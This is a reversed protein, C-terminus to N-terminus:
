YGGNRIEGQRDKGTQEATSATALKFDAGFQGWAHKIGLDLANSKRDPILVDSGDVDMAYIAKHSKGLTLKIANELFWKPKYTRSPPRGDIMDLINDVVVDAQMFGARAMKPGGHEAVDGLAFIPPDQSPITDQPCVQLTPNVLIRSTEKSIASPLYSALIASNPRQGTCGIQIKSNLQSKEHQLYKEIPPSVILDFEEEHGDSFALKAHRAFNGQAPMTPRENLLVRVRLENQLADLAYDQLRKGFHSMLTGRSHVLTVDKDPYFDKIDSSLQVGVAGGGVIAIKQSSIIAEQVQRLEFCADERETSTVQVPLPQSSGTAIALYAYDIAEGSALLVQKETIDVVTDQIHTLIGAPARRLIGDYPIFATHEHETLVSFRPFVFSYNLHSNKEVWVVKYGTPLTDTLRKVLQIGAFSGGVVVINKADARYRWTWGHYIAALRQIAMKGLM